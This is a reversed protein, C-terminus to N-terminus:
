NAGQLYREIFRYIDIRTDESPQGVTVLRDYLNIVPWSECLLKYDGIAQKQQDPTLDGWRNIRDMYWDAQKNYLSIAFDALDSPGLSKVDEMTVVPKQGINLTSCQALMFCAAVGLMVLYFNSNRRIKM